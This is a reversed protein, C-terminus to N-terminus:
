WEVKIQLEKALMDVVDKYIGGLEGSKADKYFWPGTQAYGVNIVGERRVKALISDERINTELIQALAAPPAVTGALAGSATGLMATKLFNRKNRSVDDTMSPEKALHDESFPYAGRPKTAVM